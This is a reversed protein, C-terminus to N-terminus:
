FYCVEFLAGLFALSREAFVKMLWPFLDMFGIAVKLLAESRFNPKFSNLVYYIEFSEGVLPLCERAAVFVIMDILWPSVKPWELRNWYVTLFM